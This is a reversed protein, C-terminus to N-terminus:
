GECGKNENDLYYVVELKKVQGNLGSGLKQSQAPRNLDVRTAFGLSLNEWINSPDSAM